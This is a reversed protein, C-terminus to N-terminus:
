QIVSANWTVSTPTATSGACVRVSITNVSSVWASWNFNAGITATPSVTAVGTTAAGPLTLTQEQCTGATVSTFASNLSLGSARYVANITSGGGVTPNILACDSCNQVTLNAVPTTSAISFPATGTAISSNLRLGTFLGSSTIGFLQSGGQTAFSFGQSDNLPQFLVTNGLDFKFVHRPTGSSDVADFFTNNESLWNGDSHYSYNRTTGATQAQADFGYSNVFTAGHTSVNQNGGAHYASATIAGQQTLTRDINVTSHDGYAAIWPADSSIAQLAVYSEHGLIRAGTAGVIVNGYALAISGSGEQSGGNSPMTGTIFGTSTTGMCSDTPSGCNKNIGLGALQGLARGGYSIPYANSGGMTTNQRNDIITVNTPGAYVKYTGTDTLNSSEPGTYTPSIIVTCANSGCATVQSDISPTTGPGAYYIAAFSGGATANLPGQVTLPQANITQPGVPNSVIANPQNNAIQISAGHCVLARGTSPTFWSIVAVNPNLTDTDDPIVFKGALTSTQVWTNADNENHTITWTSSPTLQLFPFCSTVIQNPGIVPTINLPIASNLDFPGNILYNNCRLITGQIIICVRYFTGVPTIVQNEYVSGSINGNVDPKFTKKLTVLTTTGVIHPIQSGYNQLEFDVQANKTINGTTIDKLNGTVPVQGFIPSAVLLALLLVKTLFKM